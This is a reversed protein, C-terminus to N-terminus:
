YNLFWMTTRRARAEHSPQEPSSAPAKQQVIPVGTPKPKPSQASRKNARVRELVGRRAAPAPLADIAELVEPDLDGLGDDLKPGSSSAALPTDCLNGASSGNRGGLIIDLLLLPSGVGAPVVLPAISKPFRFEEFLVVRSEPVVEEVDDDLTGVSKAPSVPDVQPSPSGEGTWDSHGASADTDSQPTAEAAQICLVM